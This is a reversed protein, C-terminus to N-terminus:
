KSRTIRFKEFRSRTERVNYGRADGTVFLSFVMVRRHWVKWYFSERACRCVDREPAFFFVLCLGLRLKYGDRHLSAPHM